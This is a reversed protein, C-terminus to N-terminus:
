QVTRCRNDKGMQQNQPCQRPTDLLSRNDLTVEPTTSENDDDSGGDIGEFRQRDDNNDDEFVIASEDTSPTAVPKPEGAVDNNVEDVVSGRLKKLNVSIRQHIQGFGKSIKGMFGSSFRNTQPQDENYSRGVVDPSNTVNGDDNIDTTDNCQTPTAACSAIVVLLLILSHRFYMKVRDDFSFACTM